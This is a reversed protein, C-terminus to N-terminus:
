WRIVFKCHVNRRIASVAEWPTLCPLQGILESKHQRTQQPAMGAPGQGGAGSLSQQGPGDHRCTRPHGHQGRDSGWPGPGPRRPQKRRTHSCSEELPEQSLHTPILLRLGRQERSPRGNSRTMQNTRSSICERHSRLSM